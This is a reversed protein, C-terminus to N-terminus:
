EIRGLVIKQTEYSVGTLQDVSLTVNDYHLIADQGNLWGNGINSDNLVVDQEPLESESTMDKLLVVVHWYRRSNVDAFFVLDGQNVDRGYQLRIENGDLDTITGDTQLLYPDSYQTKARLNNANSYRHDQGLQRAAGVVLDACDFGQYQETQHTKNPKRRDTSASGYVGPVNFYSTIIGLFSDDIKYSIRVVESSIGGRTTSEEGPTNWSKEGIRLELSYRMTGLGSSNQVTTPRADALIPQLGKTGEFFSTTYKIKDWGKWKRTVPDSNEYPHEADIIPEVKSWNFDADELIERIEPNPNTDIIKGKLKIQPMSSYYETSKGNGIKVVPYLFIDEEQFVASTPKDSPFEPGRGSLVFVEEVTEELKSLNLEPEEVVCCVSEPARSQQFIANADVSPPSGMSLGAWVTFLALLNTPLTLM